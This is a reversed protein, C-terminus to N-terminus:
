QIMCLAEEQYLLVVTTLLFHYEFYYCIYALLFRFSPSESISKQFDTFGRFNHKLLSFTLFIEMRGGELEEKGNGLFILLKWYDVVCTVFELVKLIWSTKVCRARSLLPTPFSLTHMSSCCICRAYLYELKKFHAQWFTKTQFFKDVAKFHFIFKFTLIIRQSTKWLELFLREIHLTEFASLYLFVTGPPPHSFQIWKLSDIICM